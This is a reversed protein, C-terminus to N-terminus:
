HYNIETLTSSIMASILLLVDVQLRNLAVFVGQKSESDVVVDEVVTDSYGQCLVFIVTLLVPFM